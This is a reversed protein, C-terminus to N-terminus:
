GNGAFQVHVPQLWVLRAVACCALLYIVASVGHWAGFSLGGAVGNERALTMFLKLVWENFALLLAATFGLAFKRRHPFLLAFAAVLLGLYTEISFLRAAILGAVHRDSQLNFLTSAVWLLSWLSGAWLVLLV